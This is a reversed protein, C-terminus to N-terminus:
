QVGLYILWLIIAAVAAAVFLDLLGLIFEAKKM